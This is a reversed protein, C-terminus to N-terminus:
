RSGCEKGVRREESRLHTVAFDLGGASLSARCLGDDEAVHVIGVAANSFEFRLLAVVLQQRFQARLRARSIQACHLIRIGFQLPGLRIDFNGCSVFSMSMVIVGAATIAGPSVKPVTVSLIESMTNDGRVGLNQSMPAPMEKRPAAINNEVM